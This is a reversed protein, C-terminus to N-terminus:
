HVTELADIFQQKSLTAGDNNPYVFATATIPMGNRVWHTTMVAVTSTQYTELQTYRGAFRVRELTRTEDGDDSAQIHPPLARRRNVSLTLLASTDSVYTVDVLGTDGRWAVFIGQMRWSAANHLAPIHYGVDYSAEALDTYREPSWEDEAEPYLAEGPLLAACLALWLVIAITFLAFRQM